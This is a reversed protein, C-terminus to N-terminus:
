NIVELAKRELIYFSSDGPIPQQFSNRKKIAALFPDEEMYKAHAFAIRQCFPNTALFYGLCHGFLETGKVHNEIISPGLFVDRVLASTRDFTVYFNVFMLPLGRESALVLDGREQSSRESIPDLASFMGEFLSIWRPTVSGILYPEESICDKYDILFM